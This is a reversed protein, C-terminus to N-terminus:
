PGPKKDPPNLGPVTKYSPPDPVSQLFAYITALDADSLIKASYPPMEGTPRRCYQAFDPYAIPHPALRKGAAGGQGVHGHCEYCGDREYFKKGAQAADRSGAIQAGSAKPATRSQGAASACLAAAVILAMCGRRKPYRNM